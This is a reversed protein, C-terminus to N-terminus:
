GLDYLAYLRDMYTEVSFRARVDELARASMRALSVRDADLRLIATSLAGHDLTPYIFGTEGDLVAEGIGGGDPVVVPLGCAMAEVCVIGFPEFPAAHVFIDSSAMLAPVDSRMGLFQVRDAVGLSAALAELEQRQDGDGAIVLGVNGGRAVADATARICVDMRKNVGRGLTGVAILRLAGDPLGLDLRPTGEPRPVFRKVDVCNHFVHLRSASTHHTERVWRRLADSCVIVEQAAFQTVFNAVRIKPSKLYIDGQEFGVRRSIGAAAAAPLGLLRSWTLHAEVLDPRVTAFHRRLTSFVQDYRRERFPKRLEFVDVEFGLARLQEAVPGDEFLGGVRHRYPFRVKADALMTVLHTQAGGVRFEDILHYILPESM